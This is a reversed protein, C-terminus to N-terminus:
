QVIISEGVSHHLEEGVPSSLKENIKKKIKKTIFMIYISQEHPYKFWM